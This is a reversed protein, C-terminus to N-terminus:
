VDCCHTLESNVRIQMSMHHMPIPASIMHACNMHKSMNGSRSAILNEKHGYAISKKRYTRINPRYISRAHIHTFSTILINTLKTTRYVCVFSVEVVNYHLCLLFACVYCANMAMLVCNSAVLIRSEFLFVNFDAGATDYNM